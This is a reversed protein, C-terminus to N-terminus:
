KMKKENRRKRRQDKPMSCESRREQCDQPTHLVEVVDGEGEGEGGEGIPVVEEKRAM